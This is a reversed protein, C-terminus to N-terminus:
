VQEWETGDYKFRDISDRPYHEDIVDRLDHCARAIEKSGMPVYGNDIYTAFADIVAFVIQMYRKQTHLPQRSIYTAFMVPDFRVDNLMDSTIEAYKINPTKAM